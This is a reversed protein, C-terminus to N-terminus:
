IGIVMHWPSEASIPCGCVSCAPEGSTTYADARMVFGGANLVCYLKDAVDIFVGPRANGM